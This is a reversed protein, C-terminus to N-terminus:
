GEVEGKEYNAKLFRMIERQCRSDLNLFSIKEGNEDTVSLEWKYKKTTIENGNYVDILNDHLRSIDDEINRCVDLLEDIPPADSIGDGVADSMADERFDYADYIKLVEGMLDSVSEIKARDILFTKGEDDRIWYNLRVNKDDIEFEFQVNATVKELVKELSRKSMM